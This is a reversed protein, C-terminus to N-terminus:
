QAEQLRALIMAAAVVLSWLAFATAAAILAGDARTHSTM